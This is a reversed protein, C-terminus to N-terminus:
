AYLLMIFTKYIRIVKNNSAADTSELTEDFNWDIETDLAAVADLFM